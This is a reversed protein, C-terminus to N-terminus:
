HRMNTGRTSCHRMLTILYASMQFKLCSRPVNKEERINGQYDDVFYIKLYPNIFQKGKSGHEM